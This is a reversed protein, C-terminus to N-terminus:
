NRSFIAGTISSPNRELSKLTLERMFEMNDKQVQIDLWKMDFKFDEGLKERVGKAIEKYLKEIEKKCYARPGIQRLYDTAERAGELSQSSYWSARAQNLLSDCEQQLFDQYLRGISKENEAYCKSSLPINAIVKVADNMQKKVKLAYAKKTIIDCNQEYYRVIEVKVNEVFASLQTSKSKLNRFANIYAKQTNRGVGKIRIQETQFVHGKKEINDAGKEVKNDGVYLTLELDLVVARPASSLYVKELVAISPLLFFRPSTLNGSVGSSTVIQYLRNRLLKTASESIREGEDGLLEPVWVGILIDNNDQAQTSLVFFMILIVTVVKRMM